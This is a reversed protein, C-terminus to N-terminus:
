AQAAIIPRLPLYPNSGGRARHVSGQVSAFGTPAHPVQLFVDLRDRADVHHRGDQFDDAACRAHAEGRDGSHGLVAPDGAGDAVLDVEAQQGAALELDLVVIQSSIRSLPWATTMSWTAASWDEAAMRRGRHVAELAVDRHRDDRRVAGEEAREAGDVGLRALQAVGCVIPMNLSNASRIAKWRSAWSRRAGCRPPAARRARLARLQALLEDGHEAVIQAVRQGRDVGADLSSRLVRREVVLGLRDDGEDALATPRM